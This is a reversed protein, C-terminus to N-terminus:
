SVKKNSVKEELQNLKKKLQQNEMNSFRLRDAIMQALRHLIKNGLRPDTEMLGFLDSQFFGLMDSDIAATATATRPTESLLAIDGFFEGNALVALLKAEKGLTINVHGNEIIYMGAGPDGENFIIEDTKYHRHHLIREIAKLEKKTLDQFIPIKKLVTYINKVDKEKKRFINGWMTDEDM